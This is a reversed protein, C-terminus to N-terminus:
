KFQSYIKYSCTTSNQANIHLHITTEDNPYLDHPLKLFNKIQQKDCNLEFVIPFREKIKARWYFPSLNSIKISADIYDGPPITINKPLNAEAKFRINSLPVPTFGKPLSLYNPFSENLKEKPLVKIYKRFTIEKKGMIDIKVILLKTDNKLSLPIQIRSNFKHLLANIHWPIKFYEKDADTKIYIFWPRASQYAFKVPAYPNFIINNSASSVEIAITSKGEIFISPTLLHIDKQPNIYQFPTGKILKLIIINGIKDILELEKRGNILPLRNLLDKHIYEEPHIIIYDINISQLLKISHSSPFEFLEHAIQYQLPPFIATVGNATNHWYFTSGFLAKTQLFISDAPMEIIMAKNKLDNLKKYSILVNVPYHIKPIAYTFLELCIFVIAIMKFSISKFKLSNITSLLYSILFGIILIVFISFRHPNRTAKMPPFIYWLILFPMPLPKKLGLAYPGIAFIATILGAWKLSNLWRPLKKIFFSILFFSLAFFGPFMTNEIPTEDFRRVPLLKFIQGWLLNDSSATFWSWIPGTYRIQQELTRPIGFSKSVEYYKFFIPTMLLWVILIALLWKFIKSFIFLPKEKAFWILNWLTLVICLFIGIYVSILFAWLYFLSLLFLHKFKNTQWYRLNAYFIIPLCFFSLMHIRGITFQRMTWPYFAFILAGALSALRDNFLKKFIIYTTSSTLWILLLSTINITLINNKTIAYIPCAFPVLGIITESFALANDYPHMANTKWYNSFDM